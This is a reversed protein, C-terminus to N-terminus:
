LMVWNKDVSLDVDILYKSNSDAGSLFKEETFIKPEITSLSAENNIHNTNVHRIENASLTLMAQASM